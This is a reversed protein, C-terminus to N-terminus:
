RAENRRITLPGVAVGAQKLIQETRHALALVTDFGYISHRVVSPQETWAHVCCMWAYALQSEEQMVVDIRPKAWTLAVAATPRSALDHDVQVQDVDLAKMTYYTLSARRYERELVPIKLTVAQHVARRLEVVTTEACITVSHGVPAPRKAATDAATFGRHGVFAPKQVASSTARTVIAAASPRQASVAAATASAKPGASSQAGAGNERGLLTRPLWGSGPAGTGGTNVRVVLVAHVVGIDTTEKGDRWIPGVEVGRYLDDNVRTVTSIWRNDITLVLTDATTRRWTGRWLPPSGNDRFLGQEVLEGNPLLRILFNRAHRDEGIDAILKLWYGEHEAGPMPRRPSANIITGFKSLGANIRGDRDDALNVIVTPHTADDAHLIAQSRIIATAVPATDNVTRPGPDRIQLGTMTRSDFGPTAPRPTYGSAGIAHIEVIDDHTHGCATLVSNMATQDTLNVIAVQDVLIVLLRPTTMDRLWM